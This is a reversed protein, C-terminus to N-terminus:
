SLSRGLHRLLPDRAVRDLTAVAAAIQDSGDDDAGCLTIYGGGNALMVPLTNWKAVGDAPVHMTIAAALAFGLADAEATSVATKPGVLLAPLVSGDDDVAGISLSTTAIIGPLATVVGRLAHAPSLREGAGGVVNALFRRARDNDAEHYPTLFLTPPHRSL